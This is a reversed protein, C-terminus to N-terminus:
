VRYGTLVAYRLWNYFTLVFLYIFVWLMSKPEREAHTTPITFNYKDNIKELVEISVDCCLHTMVMDFPSVNIAHYWSLNCIIKLLTSTIVIEM